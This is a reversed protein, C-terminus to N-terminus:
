YDDDCYEFTKSELDDENGLQQNFVAIKSIGDTRWILVLNLVVGVAGFEGCRCM